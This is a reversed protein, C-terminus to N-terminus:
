SRHLSSSAPLRSSLNQTTGVTDKQLLKVSLYNVYWVILGNVIHLEIIKAYECLQAAM